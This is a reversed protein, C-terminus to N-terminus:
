ESPLEAVRPIQSLSESAKLAHLYQLGSEETALAGDSHRAVRLECSKVVDVSPM